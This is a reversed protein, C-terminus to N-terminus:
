LAEDDNRRICLGQTKLEAATRLSLFEIFFNGRRCLATMRAFRCGKM